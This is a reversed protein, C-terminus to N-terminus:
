ITKLFMKMLIPNVYCELLIGLSIFVAFAVTKTMNWRSVPYNYLYWLVLVYGAIYLIFQPLAAVLCLVIGKLGMKMVASTFLIGCLLGTWLLFCVVVAKRIRLCGMVGLAVLPMIRIRLIYWLYDQVVIETQVFQNLFYENFIGVAAVYDKSVVNAYLIGFFFGLMYLLIFHKRRDSIRM